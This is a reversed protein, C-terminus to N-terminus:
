RAKSKGRLEELQSRVEALSAEVEQKVLERIDVSTYSVTSLMKPAETSLGLHEMMVRQATQNLTEGELQLAELAQVAVDPLRYSFPKSVM